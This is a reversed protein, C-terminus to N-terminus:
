RVCVGLGFGRVWWCLLFCLVLLLGGVWWLWLCWSGWGCLCCGDALM